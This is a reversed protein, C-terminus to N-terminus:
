LTKQTEWMKCDLSTFYCFVLFSPFVQWKVRFSDFFITRFEDFSEPHKWPAYFYFILSFPNFILMEYVPQRYIHTTLMASIKYM